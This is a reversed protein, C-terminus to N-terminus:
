LHTYSVSEARDIEHARSAVGFRPGHQQGHETVDPLRTDDLHGEADRNGRQQRPLGPGHQEAPVVAAPNAVDVPQRQLTAREGCYAGGKAGPDDNAWRCSGTWHLVDYSHGSPERVLRGALASRAEKTQRGDGVVQLAQGM